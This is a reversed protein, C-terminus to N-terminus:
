AEKLLEDLHHSEKVFLAKYKGMEEFIGGPKNYDATKINGLAYRDGFTIGFYYVHLKYLLTHIFKYLRIKARSEAIRKGIEENFYDEDHCVAKGSFELRFEEYQKKTCDGWSADITPHNWMWNVIDNPFIQWLDTPMTMRGVMTVVVCKDNFTKVKMFDDKFSVKLM